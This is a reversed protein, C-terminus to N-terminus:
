KSEVEDVAQMGTMLRLPTTMATFGTTMATIRTTM